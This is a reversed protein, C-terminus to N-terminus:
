GGRALSLPPDWSHDPSIGDHTDLVTVANRPRVDLWRRLPGADGATLGHLILPPLAFDYM